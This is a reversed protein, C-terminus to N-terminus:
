RAPRVRQRFEELARTITQQLQELEPEAASGLAKARRAAEAYTQEAAAFEKAECQALALGTLAQLARLPQKRRDWIAVVRRITAMRAPADGLWREVNALLTLASITLTSEEGFREILLALLDHLVRRDVVTPHEQEIHQFVAQALEGILHDPLKELEAFPPTEREATKLIRAKLALASALRPHRNKSFNAVADDIALEAEGLKGRLLFVEALPELAFGYGPHDRGYTAQRGRLGERLVSEAEELEGARQLTQGLNLLYTLRDRMLHADPLVVSCAKRFAEVARKPQGVSLLVSGLDNQARAYEPSNSGFQKAAEIAANLVAEEARASEGRQLLQTAQAMAPSPGTGTKRRSM